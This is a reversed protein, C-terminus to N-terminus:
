QIGLLTARNENWLIIVIKKAMCVLSLFFDCVRMVKLSMIPELGAENGALKRSLHRSFLFPFLYIKLM